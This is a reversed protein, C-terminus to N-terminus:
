PVQATTNKNKGKVVLADDVASAGVVRKAAELIYSKEKENRAVGALRVRGQRTTIQVDGKLTVKGESLIQFMVAKTIEADTPAAGATKVPALIAPTAAAVPESSAANPAWYSYVATALEPQVLDTWFSKSFHPAALFRDKSANLALAKGNPQWKVASPPVLYLTGNTDAGITPQIVLYTARGGTLDIMVDQVRGLSEGVSGLVPKELLRAGSEPTGNFVKEPAPHRFYKTGGEIAKTAWTESGGQVFRPARDFVKHDANVLIKDKAVAHFTAPPVPIVGNGGPSILAALVERRSLDLLVDDFKGVSHEGIDRVKKGLLGSVGQLLGLRETDLARGQLPAEDSRRLVDASLHVPGLAAAAAVWFGLVRNFNGQVRPGNLFCVNMQMHFASASKRAKLKAQTMGLIPVRIMDRLGKKGNIEPLNGKPKSQTDM